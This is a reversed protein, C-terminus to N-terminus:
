KRGPGVRRGTAFLTPLHERGLFEVQTLNKVRYFFLEEGRSDLVALVDDSGANFTLVSYDGVRAAVDSTFAAPMIVTPAPSAANAALPAHASLLARVRTAVQATIGAVLVGALLVLGARLVLSRPVRSTSGATM